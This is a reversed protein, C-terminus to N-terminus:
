RRFETPTVGAWRKFARSFTSQESFGLLFAIESFVMKEEAVYKRALEERTQDLVDGFTTGAEQLRRQLSRVSMHIEGAVMEITVNGSFLKDLIVSQVRHVVDQHDLEALYRTLVQDNLGALYPNGSPLRTDADAAAITIRDIKQGFRVSAGFFAGYAQSCSPEPHMLDVSVPFFNEGINLRCMSVFVAMSLDMHAPQKMTRSVILSVGTDSEVIRTGTMNSLIRFYRDVRYIAERLSSSALWAYGLANFHSPHWFKAATLGFCPDDILKSADAWLREKRLQSIRMGPTLLMEYDIGQAAFVPEPDFGYDAIVKWLIDAPSLLHTALYTKKM